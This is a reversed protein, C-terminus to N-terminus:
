IDEEKINDKESQELVRFILMDKDEDYDEILGFIDDQDKKVVTASIRNLQNFGTILQVKAASPSVSQVKGIMGDATIVAMNEEVDHRSGRNITIQEIWREPSRAIVNATIPDFDRASETV